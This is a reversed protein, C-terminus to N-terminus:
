NSKVIGTSAKENIGCENSGYKIRVYGDEGFDAGWSNKLIWFPLDGTTEYGVAAVSHDVSDFPCSTIVGGVYTQWSTADVGVVIPGFNATYEQLSIENRPIDQYGTLIAAVDGRSTNCSGITGNYPYSDVGRVVGDTNNLYWAYINTWLNGDTLVCDITEADSVPKLPGGNKVFWAGEVNASFSFAQWTNSQGQNRVASVAGVSRWDLDAPVIALRDKQSAWFRQEEQPSTHFESVPHHRLRPLQEMKFRKSFEAPTLDAFKNAGFTAKPNQAQLDAALRMNGLFAEKATTRAYDSQYTKGFQIEYAEFTMTAAALSVILALLLVSM